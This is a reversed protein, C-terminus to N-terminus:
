SDKLYLTKKICKKSKVNLYPWLKDFKGSTSDMSTISMNNEQGAKGAM